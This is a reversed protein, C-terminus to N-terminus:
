NFSHLLILHTNSNWTLVPLVNYFRRSHISIFSLWSSGDCGETSKPPGRRRVSHEYMKLTHAIAVSGRCGTKQNIGLRRRLRVPSYRTTVPASFSKSIKRAHLTDQIISVWSAMNWQQDDSKRVGLMCPHWIQQPIAASVRILVTSSM